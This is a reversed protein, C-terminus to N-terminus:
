APGGAAFIADVSLTLAPFSPSVLSQGATLRQLQYEGEVLQCLTLTPQKPQGLYRVAGLARYDVIWYEQIGLAEYDVLKHGYDDRWNTSVVEVVLPISDGLQVTAAADWLTEHSLARRDLVLVDPRYGSNPRQPKILGTKPITYPLNMQRFHLTLEEALFAGILEHCGTPQMPVVCGDYLEYNPDHDPLWRLFAEFDVADPGLTNPDIAQVM